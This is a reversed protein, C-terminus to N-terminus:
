YQEEFPSQSTNSICLLTLPLHLGELVRALEESGNQDEKSAGSGNSTGELSEMCGQFPSTALVRVRATWEDGLVWILVRRERILPSLAPRGFLVSSPTYGVEELIPFGARLIKCVKRSFLFLVSHLLPMLFPLPTPLPLLLCQLGPLWFVSLLFM